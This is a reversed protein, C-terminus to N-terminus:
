WIAEGMGYGKGTVLGEGYLRCKGGGTGRVMNGRSRMDSVGRWGRVM